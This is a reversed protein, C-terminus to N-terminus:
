TKQSRVKTFMFLTDSVSPFYNQTRIYYNDNVNANIFERSFKRGFMM